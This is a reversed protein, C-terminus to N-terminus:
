EIRELGELRAAPLDALMESVTRGLVPHRWRAAIDALPRLVFAREHLRPHPLVLDTPTERAQAEPPLKAWRWWVAESPQVRDGSALLDLDCTRPGWRELRQRGAAQEIQHLIAMIQEPADFGEIAIAANVFEPGAGEPSAPTKYWPSQAVLKLGGEQLSAIAFRLTERPGGVRSPLNAGLAVLHLVRSASSNDSLGAVM